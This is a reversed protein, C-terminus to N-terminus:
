LLRGLFRQRSREIANGPLFVIGRQSPMLVLLGTMDYKIPAPDRREPM